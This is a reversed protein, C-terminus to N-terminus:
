RTWKGSLLERIADEFFATDAPDTGPSGARHGWVTPMVRLEANPMSAIEIRNDEPPFYMDTESPMVIARATIAGLAATLDGKFRDNDSIDARQWTAIQCLFDEPHGIKDPLSRELFDELSNFGLKQYGKERYWAQSFGWSDAIIRMRKLGVRAAIAPDETAVSQLAMKMTALFAYNHPSTRASGELALLANVEDAFYSGWQFAIQAGMSRGVVLQLKKVGLHERLLRRQLVVNDLLSLYPFPKGDRAKTNSPSSSYGNGFINVVVIFYKSPDLPRGPAIIWEVDSHSGTFWTPFLIANSAASNLAGHTKYAVRAQHLVEGHQLSVDGLEYISFGM